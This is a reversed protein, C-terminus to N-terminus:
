AVLMFNSVDVFDSSLNRGLGGHQGNHRGEQGGVQGTRSSLAQRARGAGAQGDDGGAAVVLFHDIVVLVRAVHALQVALASAHTSAKHTSGGASVDHFQLDLNVVVALDHVCLEFGETAARGDSGGAQCSLPDLALVQVGGTLDLVAVDGLLERQRGDFQM